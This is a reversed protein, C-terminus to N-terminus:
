SSRGASPHTLKLRIVTCGPANNPRSVEGHIQESFREVLRLGLANERSSDDRYGPGNDEYTVVLTRDREVHIRINIKTIDQFPVVHKYTNSLLENLIM